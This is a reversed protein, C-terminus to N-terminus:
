LRRKCILIIFRNRMYGEEIQVTAQEKNVKDMTYFRM